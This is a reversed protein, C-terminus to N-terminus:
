ACYTFSCGSADFGEDVDRTDALMDKNSQYGLLSNLWALLVLRHELKTYHQAGSVIGAM